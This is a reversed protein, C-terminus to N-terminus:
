RRRWEPQLWRHRLPRKREFRRGATGIGGCAGEAGFEALPAGIPVVEGEQVLIKALKGEFPSPIEVVAKDTEVEVVPEDLAVNDGEAKLWRTVTGETVGEGVNPMTLQPM